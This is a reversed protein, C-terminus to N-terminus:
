RAFPDAHLMTNAPQFAIADQRIAQAAVIGIEVILDQPHAGPKPIEVQKGSKISRLM